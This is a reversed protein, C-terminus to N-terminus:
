FPASDPRQYKYHKWRGVVSGVGSQGAVAGARDRPEADPRNNRDGSLVHQTAPRDLEFQREHYETVPDACTRSRPTARADTGTDPATSPADPDAHASGALFRRRQVCHWRRSHRHYASGLFSDQPPSAIRM